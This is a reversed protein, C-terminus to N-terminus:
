RPFHFIYDGDEESLNDFQPRQRRATAKEVKSKVYMSLEGFTVLGDSNNIDLGKKALGQIIATTFPSHESGDSVPQDAGATLINISKRSLIDQYYDKNYHIQPSISRKMVLGSFCSDLLLAIHRSKLNQSINRLSDLAITEESYDIVSTSSLDIAADYPIIYGKKKYNQMTLGQGHGAFYFIFSDQKGGSREIRQLEKLINRKTAKENYLTTVKIGMGNFIDALAEADNVANELRPINQNKYSDIGVLLATQNKYWNLQEKLSKIGLFSININEKSENGYVDVASVLISNIGKSLSYDLSFLGDEDIVLAKGNITAKKVKSEDLILGSILIKKISSVRIRKIGRKFTPSLFKIRPAETDKNTTIPQTVVKTLQIDPVRKQEKTINELSTEAAAKAKEEKRLLVLRELGANIDRPFVFGDCVNIVMGGCKNTASLALKYYIKSADFYGLEEASRALYYYERDKDYGVKFVSTVLDYWLGNKYLAKKKQRISGARYSCPFGCTLRIKGEKLELDINIIPEGSPMVGGRSSCGIFSSMILILISYKCIMLFSTNKKMYHKRYNITVALESLM